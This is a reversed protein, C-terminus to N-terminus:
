TTYGQCYSKCRAKCPGFSVCYEECTLSSCSILPLELIDQIPDKIWEIEM